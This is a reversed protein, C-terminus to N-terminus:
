GVWKLPVYHYLMIDIENKRRSCRCIHNNKGYIFTKHSCTIKDLICKVFFVIKTSKAMKRALFIIATEMAVPLCISFDYILM